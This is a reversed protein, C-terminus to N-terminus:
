RAPDNTTLLNHEPHASVGDNQLAAAIRQRLPLFGQPQGYSVLHGRVSRGVARAALRDYAKVVTFRSGGVVRGDQSHVAFPYQPAFGARRHAPGHRVGRKGGCHGAGRRPLAVAVTEQAYQHEREQGAGNPM